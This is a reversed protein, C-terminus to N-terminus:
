LSQLFMVLDALQAPNMDEILQHRQETFVQELSLTRGDHFCFPRQWAGRLSPPNFRKNGVEDTLGVDYADPSTYTPPVHCRNCKQGVFIDRGREIAARDADNPSAHARPVPPLTSLYETLDGIQGDTLPKGRMTTEVSKRVQAALTQMTGNWGWPGTEAVGGLSPIRKPAGYSGDGLTDSMFGTSHGDPHCTQCSLWKDHSIRSDYFLLEGRDAATLEPQPGLPITAAARHKLAIVADGLTDAVYIIGTGTEPLVATPRTGAPVRLFQSGSERGFAVEGSGGLAVIITGDSTVAISAPDGSGNGIESLLYVRSGSNAVLNRDILSDIPISRIVNAVLAGWHIDSVSTEALPSLVQQSVYLRQGDNSWALGRINQGPIRNSKVAENTAVDVVNLGGDFANAVVLHKGDPTLIQLRPCFETIEAALALTASAEPGRVLDVVSIRGSWLSAVYCRHGERNLIVSVPYPAVSLSHVVRLSDGSMELLYLRHKGRDTALFHNALDPVAVLDSLSQGIQVCRICQGKDLDVISISGSRENAALLLRGNDSLALAVPRRLRPAPETEQAKGAAAIPGAIWLGTLLCRWGRSWGSM